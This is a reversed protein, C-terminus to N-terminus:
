GQPYKEMAEKVLEKAIRLVDSYSYGNLRGEEVVVEGDVVVYSPNVGDNLVRTLKADFLAYDRAPKLGFIEYGGLTARELLIARYRKGHIKVALQYQHKVSGLLLPWDTGFAKVEEAKKLTKGYLTLNSEPCHVVRINASSYGENETCHVGVLPREPKGIMALLKWLDKTGESLHMAFPLGYRKALSYTRRLDEPDVFHVSHVFVGVKIGRAAGAALLAIIGREIESGHLWCGNSLITPTLVVRPRRTMSFAARMNARYNGVLAILTTGELVSKALVVEALKRSFELDMRLAVEDVRLKRNRLWELSNRWRGGTTGVDVVQPHAHSDSFGPAIGSEVYLSGRGKVKIKANEIIRRGAVLLEGVEIEM